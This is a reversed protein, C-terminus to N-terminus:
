RGSLTMVGNGYKNSHITQTGSRTSTTRPVSLLHQRELLSIIASIDTHKVSKKAIRNCNFCDNQNLIIQIIKDKEDYVM